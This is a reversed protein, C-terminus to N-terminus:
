GEDGRSILYRYNRTHIWSTRSEVPQDNFTFATRHVELVPEGPKLGLAKAVSASAKVASLREVVRVVNINYTIQFIAYLSKDGDIAFNKDLQPFLRESVTLDAVAIVTGRSSIHMRLRAVTEEPGSLRLLRVTEDDPRGRSARVLQRYYLAKVGSTHYLNFFRHANQNSSHRAVFTGKGQIRVLVNSAVLEGIAARITSIGVGFRKALQKEVPIMEDPRWEGAILNQIIQGKVKKYLPISGM